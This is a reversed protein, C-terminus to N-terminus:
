AGISAALRELASALDPAPPEACPTSRAALWWPPLESGNEVFFLRSATGALASAYDVPRVDEDLGALAPDCDGVAMGETAGGARLWAPSERDFDPLAGGGALGAGPLLLAGQVRTPRAGALLLAVWAGVGAGVVAASGARALAADADGALLEPYYAGGKVWGSSGHGSFDLALVPGPWADVEDTWDAGSGHLAHLLLLATGQGAKRERLELSVRGHRIRM